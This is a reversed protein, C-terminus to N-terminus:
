ATIFTIENRCINDPSVAQPTDSTKNAHVMNTKTKEGTCGEWMRSAKRLGSGCRNETNARKVITKM